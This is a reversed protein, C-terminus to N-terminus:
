CVELVTLLCLDKNFYIFQYLQKMIALTSGAGTVSCGSAVTDSVAGGVLPTEDELGPAHLEDSHPQKLSIFDHQRPVNQVGTRAQVSLPFIFSHQQAPHIPGAESLVFCRVCCPISPETHM